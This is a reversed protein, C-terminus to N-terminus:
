ARRVLGAAELEALRAAIAAAPDEAELDFSEAIRALVADADGERGSLAALIQPGPPALLHTMGSPRHYLITLGELVVARVADDPDAIFRPGAM